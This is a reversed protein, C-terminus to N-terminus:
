CSADSQPPLQDIGMVPPRPRGEADCRNLERIVEPIVAQLAAHPTSAPPSKITPWEAVSAVYGRDAASWRIRFGYEYAKM